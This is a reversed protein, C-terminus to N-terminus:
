EKPKPAPKPTAGPVDLKPGFEANAAPKKKREPDDAYTPTPGDLIPKLRGALTPAKDAAFMDFVVVDNVGQKLWPEPVYLTVQPGINWFRGLCRGNIWLVGKGLTSTDLFADGVKDLTFNGFGFHPGSGPSKFPRGPRTSGADTMPLSYIEWGTLPTKQGADDALFATKIGKWEGRMNRTSNLRGTNEVLIELRAPGDSKLPVETANYHRDLTGVLSGNLYVLAFDHVPDIVLKKGQVAETLEKRYLVYGYAQDLQEMTMLAESAVPPPLQPEIPAMRLTFEPIAVV